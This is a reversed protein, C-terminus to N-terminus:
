LIFVRVYVAVVILVLSIFNFLHDEKKVSKVPTASTFSKASIVDKQNASHLRTSYTSLKGNVMKNGNRIRAAEFAAIQSTTM